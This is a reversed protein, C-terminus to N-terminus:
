EQVHLSFLIGHLFKSPVKSAKPFCHFCEPSGWSHM